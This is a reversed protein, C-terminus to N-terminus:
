DTVCNDFDAHCGADCFDQFIGLELRLEGIADSEALLLLGHLDDGRSRFPGFDEFSDFGSDDVGETIFSDRHMM